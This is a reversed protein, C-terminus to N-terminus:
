LDLWAPKTCANEVTWKRVRSVLWGSKWLVKGDDSPEMYKGLRFSMGLKCTKFYYVWQFCDPSEQCLKGCKEFSEHAHSQADKLRKSDERKALVLPEIPPARAKIKNETAIPDEKDKHHSAEDEGPGREKADKKKADGNTKISTDAEKVDQKDINLKQDEEEQRENNKATATSKPNVEGQVKTEASSEMKKGRTVEKGEGGDGVGKEKQKDEAEKTQKM